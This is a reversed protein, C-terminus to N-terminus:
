AQQQRTQEIKKKVGASNMTLEAHKMKLNEVKESLIVSQFLYTFPSSCYNPLLWIVDDKTLKGLANFLIICM